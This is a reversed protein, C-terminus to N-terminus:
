VTPFTIGWFNKARDDDDIFEIGYIRVGDVASVQKVIRAPVQTGRKNRVAITSGTLVERNLQITGGHRNLDTAKAPTTFSGSQDQGSLGVTAKLAM